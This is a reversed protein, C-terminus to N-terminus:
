KSLKDKIYKLIFYSVFFGGFWQVILIIVALVKTFTTLQGDLLGLSQTIVSISGIWIALIVANGILWGLRKFDDM